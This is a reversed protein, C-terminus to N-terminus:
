LRRRGHRPCRWVVVHGIIGALSCSSTLVVPVTIIRGRVTSCSIGVGLYEAVGGAVIGDAVGAVDAPCFGIVHILDSLVGLTSM